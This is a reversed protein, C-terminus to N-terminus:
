GHTIVASTIQVIDAANITTTNLVINESGTGVTLGDCVVTGTSDKIRAIAATGTNNASADEPVPSVDFTLVGNTTTGCPDNLTVQALTSAYAATCIEIYGAGAGGDIANIVQTMRNDKVANSYVIAM